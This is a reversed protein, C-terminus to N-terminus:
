RRNTWRVSDYKELTITRVADQELNTLGGASLELGLREAFEGSWPEVLSEPEIRKGALQRIGPLEPAHPSAALLLSGHQVIAGKRRRQASGCIKASGLLVDGRARRQFCLFPQDAPKLDAEDVCLSAHVGLKALVAILGKHAAHYLHMADMALPHAIPLALSYTLEADHVIAGGGTQRRVIPCDRSPIHKRRAEFSQFYGLSLTAESWGYFRLTALGQEAATELLVEDTAMQWAGSATAYHILRCPLPDRAPM